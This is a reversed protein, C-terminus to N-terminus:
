RITVPLSHVQIPSLMEEVTSSDHGPPDRCAIFFPPGDIVRIGASDLTDIL